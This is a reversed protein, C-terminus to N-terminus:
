SLFNRHDGKEQQRPHQPGESRPRRRADEVGLPPLRDAHLRVLHHGAARLVGRDAAFHQLSLFFLNIHIAEQFAVAIGSPKGKVLRFFPM